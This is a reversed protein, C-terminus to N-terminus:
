FVGTASIKNYAMKLPAASYQGGGFDGAILVINPVTDLKAIKYLQDIDVERHLDGTVYIM